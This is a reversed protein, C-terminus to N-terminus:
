KISYPCWMKSSFTAPQGGRLYAYDIVFVSRAKKDNFLSIATCYEIKAITGAEGEPRAGSSAGRRDHRTGIASIFM